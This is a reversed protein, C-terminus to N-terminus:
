TDDRTWQINGVLHLLNATLTMQPTQTGSAAVWTETHAVSPAGKLVGSVGRSLVADAMEGLCSLSWNGLRRRIEM